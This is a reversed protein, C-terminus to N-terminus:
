GDISEEIMEDFRAPWVLRADLSDCLAIWSPDTPEREVALVPRVRTGLRRGLQHAYRLVQGLALRLQREENSATLSKVEAVYTRTGVVWSLDFQPDNARPRLPVLGRHELARALDNQTVAHGRLGRDVVSPDIAFPDRDATAIEPDAHRYPLGHPASPEGVRRPALALLGVLDRPFKSLYAQAARTPRKDSVEFPFYIPRGHTSLLRDRITRIQPAHTGIEARSLVHPLNFPGELGRRWGLRLPPSKQLAASRAQSAWYVTDEWAEGGRSVM